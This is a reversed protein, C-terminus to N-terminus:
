FSRAHARLEKSAAKFAGPTLGFYTAQLGLLEPRSGSTGQQCGLSRAVRESSRQFDFIALITQLGGHTAGEIHLQKEATAAGVNNM